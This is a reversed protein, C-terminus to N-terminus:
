MGKAAAAEAKKLNAEYELEEQDPEPLQAPGGKVMVCLEPSCDVAIVDNFVSNQAENRCWQKRSHHLLYFVGTRCNVFHILQMYLSIPAPPDDDDGLPRGFHNHLDEIVYIGGPEITPWLATLTALQHGPDHSGDDVIMDFNGIYLKGGAEKKVSDKWKVACERDYEVFSIKACPLFAHWLKLSAGPGYGMDCGLGIELMRLDTFRVHSLYRTYAYHYAHDTVKDTGSWQAFDLFARPLGKSIPSTFQRNWENDYVSRGEKKLKEAYKVGLKMCETTRLDVDNPGGSNEAAPQDQAVAAPNIPQEPPEQAETQEPAEQEQTPQEPEEMEEEQTPQLLGEEEQALQEAGDEPQQEQAAAEAAAAEATAAAAATSAAVAETAPVAQQTGPPLKLQGTHVIHM